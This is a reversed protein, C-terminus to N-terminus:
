KECNAGLWYFSGHTLKMDQCANSYEVFDRRVSVFFEAQIENCNEYLENWSVGKVVKSKPTL